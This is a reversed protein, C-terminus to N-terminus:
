LLEGPPEQNSPLVLAPDVSQSINYIRPRHDGEGRVTLGTINETLSTVETVTAKASDIKQKPVVSFLYLVVSGIILLSLILPIVVKGAVPLEIRTKSGQALSCPCPSLSSLTNLRVGIIRMNNVATGTSQDSTPPPTLDNTALSAILLTVM